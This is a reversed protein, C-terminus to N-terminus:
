QLRCVFLKDHGWMLEIWEPPVDACPELSNEDIYTFGCKDEYFSVVRNDSDFDAFLWVRTFGVEALLKKLKEMFAKGHGEGQPWACFRNVYADPGSLSLGCSCNGDSLFFDCWGGADEPAGLDRTPFCERYRKFTDGASAGLLTSVHVDHEPWNAKDSLCRAPASVIGRRAVYNCFDLAMDHAPTLYRPPAVDSPFFVCVVVDLVKNELFTM